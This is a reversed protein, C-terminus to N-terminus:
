VDREEEAAARPHSRAYIERLRELSIETYIQTTTLTAHGLLEKVAHLDAGADLLHTAFSHRLLHPSLGARRKRAEEESRTAHELYGQVLRQVTRRNVRRGRTNLFLAGAEVQTIDLELLLEARRYLYERLAQLAMRGIPVIREKRGKGMVRVTGEELDLATLNLGVLESLRIGGGYFIELIARDRAGRFEGAPPLGIAQEVQELELFRPLSREPRLAGVGSAPNGALVGERCLYRFLSRVAALKRAVTSRKLGRNRLEDVFAAVLDRQVLGIPLRADTVRPYLFRVFQQLDIRYSDLTYRAYNREKELHELFRVIGEEVTSRASLAAM